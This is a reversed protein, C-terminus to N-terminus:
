LLSVIQLSDAEDGTDRRAGEEGNQYEDTPVTHRHLYHEEDQANMLMAHCLVRTMSAYAGVMRLGSLLSVTDDLDGDGIFYYGAASLLTAIVHLYEVTLLSQSTVNGRGPYKGGQTMIKSYLRLTKYVPPFSLADGFKKLAWYRMENTTEVVICGLINFFLVVLVWFMLDRGPRHINIRDQLQRQMLYPTLLCLFSRLFSEIASNFYHTLYLLSDLNMMDQASWSIFRHSNTPTMLRIVNSLTLALLIKRFPRSLDGGISRPFPLDSPLRPVITALAIGIRFLAMSLQSGTIPM